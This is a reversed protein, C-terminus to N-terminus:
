YQRVLIKKSIRKGNEYSFQKESERELVLIERAILRNGFDAEESKEQNLRNKLFEDTSVMM